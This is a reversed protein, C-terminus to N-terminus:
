QLSFSGWTHLRKVACVKAAHLCWEKIQYQGLISFPKCHSGHLFIYYCLLATLLCQTVNSRASTESPQDALSLVAIGSLCDRLNPSRVLRPLRFCMTQFTHPFVRTTARVQCVHFRATSVVAISQEPPM